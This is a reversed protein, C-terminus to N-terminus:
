LIDWVHRRQRQRRRDDSDASLVDLTAEALRPGSTGAGLWYSFTSVVVREEVHMGAEALEWCRLPEASFDNHLCYRGARNSRWSVLISLACSEERSDTICLMPKVSLSVRLDQALAAGSGVAALAGLAMAALCRRMARRPLWAALQISNTHVTLRGSNCRAATKPPRGGAITAHCPNNRVATFRAVTRYRALSDIEAPATRSVLM